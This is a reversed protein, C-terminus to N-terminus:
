KPRFTSCDTDDSTQANKPEVLIQDAMCKNGGKNYFCSTVICKVGNLTKNDM